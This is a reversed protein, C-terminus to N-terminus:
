DGLESMDAAFIDRFERLLALMEEREEPTLSPGINWNLDAPERNGGEKVQQVSALRGSTLDEDEMSHIECDATSTAKGVTM